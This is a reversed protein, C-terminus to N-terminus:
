RRRAAGDTKATWEVRKVHAAKTRRTASSSGGAGAGRGRVGPRAGQYCTRALELQRRRRRRAWGGCRWRGCALAQAYGERRLADDALRGLVRPVEPHGGHKRLLEAATRRHLLPARAFV